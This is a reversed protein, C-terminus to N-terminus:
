FMLSVIRNNITELELNLICICNTFTVSNETEKKISKFICALSFVNQASCTRFTTAGLSASSM